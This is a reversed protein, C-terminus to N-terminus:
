LLFWRDQKEGSESLYQEFVALDQEQLKQWVRKSQYRFNTLFTTDSYLVTGFKGRYFENALVILKGCIGNGRYEEKTEQYSVWPKPIPPYVSIDLFFKYDYMRTGNLSRSITIHGVSIGELLGEVKYEEWNGGNLNEERPNIPANIVLPDLNVAM